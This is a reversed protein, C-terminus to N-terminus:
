KIDQEKQYCDVATQSIVSEDILLSRDYNKFTSSIPNTVVSGVSIDKENNLNIGNLMNEWTQKDAKYQLWM